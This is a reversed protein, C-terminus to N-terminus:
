IKSKLAENSILQMGTTQEQKSVSIMCPFM